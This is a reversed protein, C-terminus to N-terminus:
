VFKKDVNKSRKQNLSVKNEIDPGQKYNEIWGEELLGNYLFHTKGAGQLGMIFVNIKANEKGLIGGM